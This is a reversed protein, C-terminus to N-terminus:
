VVVIKKEFYRLSLLASKLVYREDENPASIWELPYSSSWSIQSGMNIPPTVSYDLKDIAQVGMFQDILHIIEYAQRESSLPNNPDVQLILELTTTLERYHPNFKTGLANRDDYYYINLCNPFEPTQSPARVASRMDPDTIGALDSAVKGKIFNGFSERTYIM